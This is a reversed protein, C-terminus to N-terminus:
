DGVSKRPSIGVVVPSALPAGIAIQAFAFSGTAGSLGSFLHDYRPLEVARLDQRRHVHGDLLALTLKKM